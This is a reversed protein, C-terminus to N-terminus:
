SSIRKKRNILNVLSTNEVELMVDVPDYNLQVKLGKELGYIGIFCSDLQHPTTMCQPYLDNLEVRHRRNFANKWTAAMIPLLPLSRYRMRLMGIMASVYEGLSGHLGRSVFREIVIGNPEYLDVWKEIECIFAEGQAMIRTMDDIPHALLSNAVVKVRGKENAAIVSIAMNKSGPDLALVRKTSQRLNASAPLTYDILKRQKKKAM